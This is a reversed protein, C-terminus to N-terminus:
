VESYVYTYISVKKKTLHFFFIYTPNKWNRILSMNTWESTYLVYTSIYYFLVLFQFHGLAFLTALFDWFFWGFSVSHGICITLKRRFQHLSVFSSIKLKAGWTDDSHRYKTKGISCSSSLLRAKRKGIAEQPTHTLALYESKTNCFNVKRLKNKCSTFFHHEEIWLYQFYLM